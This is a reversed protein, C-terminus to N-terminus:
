EHKTEKEDMKAGCNPCYNPFINCRDLLLLRDDFEHGCASCAFLYHGYTDVFHAHVVPVVDEIPASKLIAIAYQSNMVLEDVNKIAKEADIYRPM